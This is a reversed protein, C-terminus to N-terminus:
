LWEGKLLKRMDELPINRIEFSGIEEVLVVDVNRNSTKKDRAMLEMLAEEEVKHSQPLSYKKLLSRIREKADGKSVYLMGIGVCEGHLLTLNAGSEIAHGVTHGFNLVKRLGAEKTDQEVVRKKINLAGIIISEIDGELDNSKEILEFLDKDCTAGMKFAEVLGAHIQREDLTKLTNPDILVASPQYFAGVVNKYGELDVATKGGISSDVMSILTTPINYFEIGRMYCASIFGALDGCVGGGVAVVCDKRSFEHDLMYAIVSKFSDLNKSAEGQPIIFIHGEKAKSAVYQAYEAPVGSDTLVLVKRNLNFISGVESLSGREVLVDYAPNTEVRIIM